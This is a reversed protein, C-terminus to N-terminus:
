RTRPEDFRRAGVMAIWAERSTYTPPGFAERARAGSAVWMYKLYDFFGEAHDDSALAVPSGTTAALVWRPLRVNVKGALGLYGSLPLVGEGVLNFVGPHSEVVSAELADLVDDEHVFQLLPDSGLVTPVWESEFYRVMPDLYSPGMIWCPRLVTIAPGDPRERLEALLREVQVRHDVWHARPHGHLEADESLHHPNEFRAGYVQTSSLVVLRPVGSRTCAEILCRSGGVELEHDARQDRTPVERFALHVVTDIQHKSIVEVLESEAGSRAIDVRHVEVGPLRYPSPEVAVGHVVIDDRNRCREALRRGFHTESGVVLIHRKDM